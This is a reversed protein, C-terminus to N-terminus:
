VLGLAQRASVVQAYLDDIASGRPGGFRNLEREVADLADRYDQLQRPAEIVGPTEMVRLSAELRYKLYELYAKPDRFDAPSPAEIPTQLEVYDAQTLEAVRTAEMPPTDSSNSEVAELPSNASVQQSGFLNHNTPDVDVDQLREAIWKGASSFVPEFAEWSM